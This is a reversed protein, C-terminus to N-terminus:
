LCRYCLWPASKDARASPSVIVCPDLHYWEKCVTCEIMSDGPQEPMRCKCYVPVEDSTKVPSKKVRRKRNVPFMAMEGKELCHRLHARMKSQDFCFLEPKEGLALATAFAVAFLGCDYSGSQMTVDMFDLIIEPKETAMVAAIQAKLRTGACAYLSDYVNVTPHSTGITSVTVWHGHGTNLIQVFEGPQVDYTMTLGCSVSQLGPVPCAKKLLNQAADVISDTVWATSSFLIDRDSPSLQLEQIWMVVEKKSQHEEVCIPNSPNNLDKTQKRQRRKLMLKKARANVACSPIAAAVSQTSTLEKLPPMPPPLLPISDDLKSPISDDLESSSSSTPDTADPISKATEQSCIIVPEYM